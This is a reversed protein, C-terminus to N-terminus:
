VTLIKRPASPDCAPPKLNSVRSLQLLYYCEERYMHDLFLINIPIVIKKQTVQLELDVLFEAFLREQEYADNNLEDIAAFHTLGTRMYGSFEMAKNHLIGFQNAFSDAKQVIERFPYSSNSQIIHAHGIADLLWVLHYHIPNLKPVIDGQYLGLINIYEDAENVMHNLVFTPLAIHIHDTLQRKLISLKFARLDNVANLVKERFRTFEYSISSRSEALLNNFLTILEGAKQIEKVEIPSLSEYIIIAHDGLAQLWFQNDMDIKNPM